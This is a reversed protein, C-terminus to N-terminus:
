SILDDINTEISIDFNDLDDIADDVEDGDDREVGEKEGDEECIEEENERCEISEIFLRKQSSSSNYTDNEETIWEDDSFVDEVYKKLVQKDNLMEFASWNRECGSSSTISKANEITLTHVHIKKEFDELILDICHSACPTWYLMKRKEMLLESALKYNADYDRVIQVVNEEGVEEVFQMQKRWEIKFDRLLEHTLEVEKKLYKVRVEHYTPPKFGLGHRAVMELAKDFYKSVIQMDEGKDDENEYIDKQRKRQKAEDNKSLFDRIKLKVDDPVSICPEVDKHTCALHHKFCYKGGSFIKPCFKCKVKKSNSDVDIGYEWGIDSGNEPKNKSLKHAVYGSLSM